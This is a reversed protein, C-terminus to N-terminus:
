FILFHFCMNGSGPKIASCPLIAPREILFLVQTHLHPYNLLSLSFKIYLNDSRMSVFWGNVRGSIKAFAMHPQRHQHLIM